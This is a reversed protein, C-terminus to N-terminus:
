FQNLKFYFGGQSILQKHTGCEIIRGKNLVIIRDASRATSLRHAIIISTRNRMLNSLATRIKQETESDIYSSAEDLIMLDPDRALARAISILQREGSSISRGGEALVTDIGAPLREIIGRCNSADLLLELERSSLGSKGNLINDRITGTFLFPDQPVLAIKSRLQALGCAAIDNENVLIRGATVNYFRMILNILTTKGAGTLGVVGLTEGKQVKFSINNLVTENKFYGFSVNQFEIKNIKKLNRNQVGPTTASAPSPRSATSETKKDDLILFIREASAMANQLINYKEAIDRIPRFFMKIYALFAVLAGLSITDSLVRPGGYYIVVAIAIAGLLEIVPMFVAFVHIQRMGAQYNEHNLEAFARYNEKEHLFLQIVKIGEITESFRSNIQAIKIRLVRFAERAQRSFYASALLVAPLILFSILALQWNIGLLVIAIGALLFLDKFVFAIVSTFLEHMNQIDNTVRTVLRGVPNKSFFAVPMNQIHAFLHIRLAHMTMQGAYEMIMVQVFNFIFNGFVLGTFVVVIIALGDFDKQRLLILDAQDIKDLDDFAILAGSTQIAFLAPHKKVIAAIDPNSIDIKLYRTKIGSRDGSPVVTSGYRPVIYNDIALKTFYPLALDGLTIIVVLVVSLMFLRLYKRAFPYLRTLLKIDYTKDIQKEEFYGYDTHM